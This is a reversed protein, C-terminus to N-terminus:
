PTLTVRWGMRDHLGCQYFFQNPLSNDPTFIMTGSTILDNAVGATIRGPVTAGGVASTTFYVPHGVTNVQFTYTVGRQLMLEDGQVGDIVFGCPWGMGFEPHTADKPAETIAFTSPGPQVGGGGNGGGGGGCAVLVLAVLACVPRLTPCM